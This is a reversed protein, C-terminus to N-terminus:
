QSMGRAAIRWIAEVRDGRLCYMADYLNVSPDCHPVLFELRDGLKVEREAGSLDLRGHEDGGWAYPVADLAPDKAKPTFPRDTSFSKIGGDVIAVGPRHSVVTTLVTLSNHFDQYIPGDQGGIRNYDLDMFVFSGPQLETVGEVDSDINYTGTSGGSVMACEIGSQEILRRTHVTRGMSEISRAKRKEFGTTHSAGGDYSQLGALRVHPLTDILQALRLAPDGMEIGTRGILLDIALNLRPTPRGGHAGAADNLDRVHGPDDVAFITDPKEAALRIARVIKPKGIVATTVLLGSLGHAAFVEAESLKAACHGSAGAETLARGVEPCKHTKGHPRFGRQRGKLFGAMKAVNAEFADLDLVLAPTPIDDRFLRGAEVAAQLAQVRARGPASTSLAIASVAATGLFARRTTQM